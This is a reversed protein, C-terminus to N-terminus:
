GASPLRGGAPLFRDARVAIAADYIAMLDEYGRASTYRERFRCAAADGLRELTEPAQWLSSAASQLAAADGAPFLRGTEGDTVIDGLSGLASALVPVGFAFAERVVMPFGEYCLSPVIALRARALRGQAESFPLQGLFSVRERAPSAAIEAELRARQPGDGMIELRPAEAGWRRWADVLIQAGKESTLRGVFVVKRERAAWPLPDTAPDYFNPKLTVREAPLGYRLLLDRQFASLSIFGDVHREWTGLRRHLAIMAALPLTATRSQRYCGYRIAPLSSRKELCRICPAGDRLALGNSCFLRFNHPTFVVATGLGAAASFVSPSLLPFSNHVHMVDPREEVLLRRLKRRVMPNWPTALGGELLGVAGRGRIEDSHRFFEVLRHGRGRLLAAEADVVANEGSPAESGYFNHVLVVKM